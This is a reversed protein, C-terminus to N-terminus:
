SASMLEVLLLKLLGPASGHLGSRERRLRVAQLLSVTTHGSWFWLVAYWLLGFLSAAAFGIAVLLGACVYVQSFTGLFPTQEQGTLDPTGGLLHNTQMLAWGGFQNLALVTLSAWCLLMGYFYRYNHIGVCNHIFYCHHDMGVIGFQQQQQQGGAGDDRDDWRREGCGKSCRHVQELGPVRHKPSPQGNPPARVKTPTPTLGPSVTKRYPALQPRRLVCNAFAWLLVVHLIYYPGDTRWSCDSLSSNQGNPTAETSPALRDAIWGLTGIAFECGHGYLFHRVHYQWAVAVLVALVGLRGKLQGVKRDKSKMNGTQCADGEILAAVTCNGIVFNLIMLVAPGFMIIYVATWSTLAQLLSDPVLDLFSNGAGNLSTDSNMRWLLNYVGGSGLTTSRPRLTTSPTRYSNRKHPLYASHYELRWLCLKVRSCFRYETSVRYALFTSSFERSRKEEAAVTANSM